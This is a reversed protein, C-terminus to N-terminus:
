INNEFFIYISAQEHSVDDLRELRSCTGFTSTAIWNCQCLVWQIGIESSLELKWSAEYISYWTDTISLTRGQLNWFVNFCELGVWGKRGIFNFLFIVYLKINKIKLTLLEKKYPRIMHLQSESRFHKPVVYFFHFKCNVKLNKNLALVSEAQFEESHPFISAVYEYKSQLLIKRLLKQWNWISHNTDVSM